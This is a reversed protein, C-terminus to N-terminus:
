PQTQLDGVDDWLRVVSHMRDHEYGLIGISATQTFFFRADMPPLGLWRAVIVRIIQASSFAAIDGQMPRVREIFRDARDAVQEPTEGGPAGDRYIYWDPRDRHVDVTLRGEYTGYNWETLDPDIEAHEAFGALKCTRRARILPSEFIRSFTQGKLRLGLLVAHQEGTANLPIDTCGTHEGSDSWDTNGHRILFLRPLKVPDAGSM